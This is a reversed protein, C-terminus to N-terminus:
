INKELIHRFFIIIQLFVRLYHSFFYFKNRNETIILHRLREDRRKRYTTSGKSTETTYNWNSYVRSSYQKLWISNPFTESSKWHRMCRPVPRKTTTNLPKRCWIYPSKSYSKLAKRFVFDIILNFAFKIVSYTIGECLFMDWVRLVSTWPLTRAFICMFWETMFLIPEIKQKEQWKNVFIQKFVFLISLFTKFLGDTQSCKSLVEEPIRVVYRRSTPDGGFRSLLLGALLPWMHQGTVLVRTGGAYAHSPCSRHAGSGLWLWNTNFKKLKTDLVQCYGIDPKLISFAKLVHFLDVQGNGMRKAFMEHNPFQRHLDKSIEDNIQENGSQKSLEKYVNPHLRIQHHAGCLYLWAQGRISHPIGKRCRDRVKNWRNQIWKDWNDLMHIWKRERRRILVLEQKKLESFVWIFVDNLQDWSAITQIFKRCTRPKTQTSSFDLDIASNRLRCRLPLCRVILRVM